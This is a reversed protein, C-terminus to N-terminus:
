EGEMMRLVLKEPSVVEIGKEVSWGKEIPAVIFTNDPKIAQLAYRNGKNLRPTLSSKCEIAYVKRGSEVIFDIEAGNSTRFFSIDTAPMHGRINALVMGEWMSGFSPHGSIQDFGKLNLLRAAIGTDSIYVKPAKVIRKGFNKHYPPIAEVMFTGRLLDIYNRITTNSVGLSKSFSSYNITQGNTHAIMQWLRRMTLSSAGSWQLLDRELFTSIFDDIWNSSIEDDAALLSRPFGGRYMYTELDVLEKIESLIFPSLRKYSIRGALSESSQRLMDRSASGLILFKGNDKWEDVLSRILPFLGPKRQIEDLVLLHDKQSKLFWEANDLKVLDSPRELDIYVSNNIEATIERALTSKGCQRPGTIATVPNNKLSELVDKEILRKLYMYVIKVM